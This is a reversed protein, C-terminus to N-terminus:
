KRLKDLEWLVSSERDMELMAVSARNEERAAQFPNLWFLRTV